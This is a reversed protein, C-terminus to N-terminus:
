WQHAVVPTRRPLVTAHLHAPNCCLRNGCDQGVRLRLDALHPNSLRFALAHATYGAGGFVVYGYGRSNRAGAWVWCETEAGRRVRSWFTEVRDLLQRPQRPAGYRACSRCCFRQRMSGRFPSACHECMRKLQEKAMARRTGPRTPLSWDPM